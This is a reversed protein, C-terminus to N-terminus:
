YVVEQKSNASDFGNELGQVKVRNMLCGEEIFRDLLTNIRSRSWASPGRASRERGVANYLAKERLAGPDGECKM